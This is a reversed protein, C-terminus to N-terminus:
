HWEEKVIKWGSSEKTFTIDAWAENKSKGYVMITASTGSIKEDSVMISRETTSSMANIADDLKGGWRSNVHNLYSTAMYKKLDNTKRTRLAKHFSKYVDTPTMGQTSGFSKLEGDAQGTLQGQDSGAEAGAARAATTSASRLSTNKNKNVQDRHKEPVRYRSDTYHFTGSEDVWKFVESFATVPTLSLVLILAIIKIM